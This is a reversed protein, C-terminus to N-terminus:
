TPHMLPCPSGVADVLIHIEVDLDRTWYQFSIDGIM